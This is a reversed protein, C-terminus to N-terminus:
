FSIRMQGLPMWGVPPPARPALGHASLMRHIDRRESCVELWKMRGGGDPYKIVDVLFVRKLVWAWATHLNSVTEPKKATIRPLV